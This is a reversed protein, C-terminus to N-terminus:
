FTLDNFCQDHYDHGTNKQKIGLRFSAVFLEIM